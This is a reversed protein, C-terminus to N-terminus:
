QAAIKFTLKNSPKGDRNKVWVSVDGAKAYAAAPVSATLTADSAFGTRLEKDGWYVKSGPIFGRGSVAFASQGDSQVNFGKAPTTGSPTLASIEPAPGSEGYVKFTLENSLTGDPERVAVKADGPTAYLRAPVTATIWGLRGDGVTKLVEGNWVVVVGPTFDKGAVALASQGDPQVNFGDGRVTGSPSTQTLTPGTKALTASEPPKSDSGCSILVLCSFAAAFRSLKLM